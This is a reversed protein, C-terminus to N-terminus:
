YDMKYNRASKKELPAPLPDLSIGPLSDLIRFNVGGESNHDPSYTTGKSSGMENQSEGVGEGCM